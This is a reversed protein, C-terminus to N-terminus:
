SGSLPKRKLALNEALIEDIQKTLEMLKKPDKEKTAQEALERWREPNQESM